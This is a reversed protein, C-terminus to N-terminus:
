WISTSPQPQFNGQSQRGWVSAAALSRKKGWCSVKVDHTLSTLTCLVSDCGVRVAVKM